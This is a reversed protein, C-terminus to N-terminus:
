RLAACAAIWRTAALGPRDPLTRSITPLANAFSFWPLSGHSALLVREVCLRATHGGDDVGRGAPHDLGRPRVLVLDALDVGAAVADDARQGLLQDVGALFGGRRDRRQTGRRRAREARAAVLELRQLRMPALVLAQDLDELGVVDAVEEVVAAAVRGVGAELDALQAGRHAVRQLGDM